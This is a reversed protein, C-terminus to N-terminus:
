RTHAGLARVAFEFIRLGLRRHDGNGSREHPVFTQDTSLTLVGGAATVAEAPVVVEWDYDGAPRLDGVIREGARLTIRSPQDFYRRMSEGRIRCHLPQGTDHVRIVAVDATWRWLRGQAPNYEQEHWGEGFGYVVRSLPQLDFQEIAAEVTRAQGHAAAATITLTAFPGEGALAGPALTWMDLLFGPAPRVAWARVPTGDIALEFRVEPAGRAGLNRGGVLVIAPEERRRVFAQVGGAAPGRGDARSAGAIEPTLAWGETAFWGPVTHLEYWDLESPRAGGLLSKPDFPWRYSRRLTRAAPDILALEHHRELGNPGPEALFWVPAVGGARWYKTIELWQRKRVTPLRIADFSEDRLAIAFPHNM